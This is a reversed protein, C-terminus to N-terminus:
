YWFLGTSSLISDDWSTTEQQLIRKKTNCFSNESLPSISLTDISGSKIELHISETQQTSRKTGRKSIYKFLKTNACVFLDLYETQVTKSFMYVLSYYGM